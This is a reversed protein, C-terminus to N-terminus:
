ECYERGNFTFCRGHVMPHAVWTRRRLISPRVPTVRVTPVGITQVTLDIFAPATPAGLAPAADPIQYTVRCNGSRDITVTLLPVVGPPAALVPVRCTGIAAEASFVGGVPAFAIAIFLAWAGQHVFRSILPRPSRSCTKISPATM